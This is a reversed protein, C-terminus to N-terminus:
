SPTKKTTATRKAPARKVAARKKTSANKPPQAAAADFSPIQPHHEIIHNLKADLMEREKASEAHLEKRQAVSENHNDELTGLRKHVGSLKLDAFRHMRRRTPPWILAAILLVIAGQVVAAVLNPGVHSNDLPWFDEKIRHHWIIAATILLLLALLALLKKYMPTTLEEEDM